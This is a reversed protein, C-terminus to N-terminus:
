NISAARRKEDLVAAHDFPAGEPMSQQQQSGSPKLVPPAAVGPAYSRRSMMFYLLPGFLPVLIIVLVWTLRDKDQQHRLCSILASLFLGLYGFGMAVTFLLMLLSSAILGSLAESYNM